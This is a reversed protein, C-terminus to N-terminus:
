PAGLATVAETRLLKWGSSRLTSSWAARVARSRPTLHSSAGFADPCPQRETTVHSVKVCPQASLDRSACAGGISGAARPCGRNTARRRPADLVQVSPVRYAPPHSPEADGLPGQHPGEGSRTSKHRWVVMGASQILSPDQAEVPRIGATGHHDPVFAGVKPGHAM